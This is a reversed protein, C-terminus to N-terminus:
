SEVIDAVDAIIGDAWGVAEEAQGQTFLQYPATEVGPHANPYRPAVHYLDLRVAAEVHKAMTPYGPLVEKLRELVSHGKVHRAGQLYALSTAGKESAQQAIFCAQAYHGTELGIKGFALDDKAQALWRAAEVKPDPKM